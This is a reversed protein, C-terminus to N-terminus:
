CCMDYEIGCHNCTLYHVWGKPEYNMGSKTCFGFGFSALHECNDSIENSKLIATIEYKGKDM